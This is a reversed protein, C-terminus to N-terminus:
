IKLRYKGNLEQILGDKVLLELNKRIMAREMTQQIARDWLKNSYFPSAEVMEELSHPPDCLDLVMRRHREFVQLYANFQDTADGEIPERHSSCVRKYSLEMIKKVDQEFVEIDCEPNGYWPGFSTLDIDTSLLTGTNQELFCYHDKLHGPTHIAQLKAGGLDLVDDDAYRGDPDRMAHIGFLKAPEQAWYSGMEDTGM